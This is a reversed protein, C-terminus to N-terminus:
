IDLYVNYHLLWYNIQLLFALLQPGAMLQGYWPKGYDFSEGLLKSVVDKSLIKHIPQASDRLVYGIKDKIIKEYGPNHTKPFPSKKRYLVDEPLWDRSADRLLGKVIGNPAKYEWPVNFVYEVLRHDAFPLRVELGTAMSCRDQRDILTAMFWQMNLHMVDRMKKNEASEGLLVPIRAFSEELRQGVYDHLKLEEKLEPKLFSERLDVNNSWPFSKGDFVDKKHFWPYGGFIEDAGEGCLVVGHKEKVQKCFYVLSGDIDAMGPLDRAIVADYVSNALNRNDCLLKQHNTELMQSVKDAWYEDRDPQFATPKFFKDNGVYEFSYTDLKKGKVALEQAMIATLVSSDLGGSLFSCIPVDAKMQRKVADELLAKVTETTKQYNDTHPMAKLSYYQYENFGEQNFIALHGPQIEHIGDFVGHGPTRAPGVGFIECLGEKKIVPNIGPYEFLSKIESGFILRGNRLSYFLPRIGFRDRCLFIQDHATDDVVFAFMGNLKEVCDKGFHIYATLVVETDSETEFHYGLSCLEDKLEEGNYIEGNYVITYGKGEYKKNMPQIGGPADVVALRSAALACHKSVHEGSQDPGRHVIRAAMRRALAMWLYKEEKLSDHYDCFGAFGSM